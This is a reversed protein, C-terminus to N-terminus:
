KKGLRVFRVERSTIVHLDYQRMIYTIRILSNLFPTFSIDPLKYSGKSQSVVTDLTEQQTKTDTLEKTLSEIEKEKDDLMAQVTDFDKQLELQCLM